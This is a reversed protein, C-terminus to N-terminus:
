KDNLEIELKDSTIDLYTGDTFKIVVTRFGIQAAQITKGKLEEDIEKEEFLELKVM